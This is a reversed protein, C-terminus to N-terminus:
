ITTVSNALRKEGDIETTYYRQNFCNLLITLEKETSINFKGDQFVVEHVYAQLYSPLQMKQEESFNAYKEMAAKIRRRNATKVDNVTYNNAVNFIDLKLFSDTEADTSENYLEYIGDFITTIASLRKFYLIDDTKNYYADAVENIVLTYDINLLQPEDNLSLNVLKKRLVMSKVLKQVCVYQDQVVTIYEIKPYLDRPLSSYATADFAEIFFNHCYNKNSFNEIKFWEDSELKYDDQYSRSNDFSPIQYVDDEQSLVIYYAKTRGSTKALLYNM